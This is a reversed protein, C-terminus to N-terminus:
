YRTPRQVIATQQNTVCFLVLVALVVTVGDTPAAVFVGVQREVCAKIAMGLYEVM